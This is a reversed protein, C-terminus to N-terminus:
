IKAASAKRDFACECHSSANSMNMYILNAIAQENEVVLIHVM